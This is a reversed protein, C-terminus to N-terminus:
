APLEVLMGADLNTGTETRRPQFIRPAYGLAKRISCGIALPVIRM